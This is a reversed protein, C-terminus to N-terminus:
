AQPAHALLASIMLGTCAQPTHGLPSQSHRHIGPKAPRLPKCQHHDTCTQPTPTQPLMARVPSLLLALPNSIGRGTSCLSQLGIPRPKAHM